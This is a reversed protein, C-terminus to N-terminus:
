RHKEGSSKMGSPFMGSLLEALIRDWLAARAPPRKEADLRVLLPQPVVRFVNRWRWRRGLAPKEEMPEVAVLHVVELRGNDPGILRLLSDRKPELRLGVRFLQAATRLCQQGHIM